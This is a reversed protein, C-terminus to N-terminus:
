KVKVKILYKDLWSRKPNCEQCINIHNGDIKFKNGCRKCLKINNVFDLNKRHRMLIKSCKMSCTISKTSRASKIPKRRGKLVRKYKNFEKGCVVCFRKKIPKQKM